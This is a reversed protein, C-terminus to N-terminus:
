TSPVSLQRLETMSGLLHIGLWFAGSLVALVAMGIRLRKLAPGLDAFPRTALNISILM